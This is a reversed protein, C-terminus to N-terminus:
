ASMDIQRVSDGNKDEEIKTKRHSKITKDTFSSVNITMRGSKSFITSYNNHIHALKLFFFRTKREKIFSCSSYMLSIFDDFAM